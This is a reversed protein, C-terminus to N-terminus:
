NPDVEIEGVRELTSEYLKGSIRYGSHLLDDLFPKIKELKRSRKALILLGIIGITTFLLAEALNRASRDDIVVTRIGLEKAGVIVEVEGRHLRGQLQDVMVQNEVKYIQIKQERVAKELELSGNSQASNGYVIERFVAEPIVVDDFLEWLLNLKGIKSLGIIPSSNCVVRIM